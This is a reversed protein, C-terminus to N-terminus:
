FFHGIKFLRTSGGSGYVPVWDKDSGLFRHAPLGARKSILDLLAFEFRGIERVTEGALGNNRYKWYLFRSWEEFTREEGTLVLPLLREEMLSTCPIVGAIGDKDYLEMLFEVKTHTFPGGTADYFVEKQPIPSLGYIVARSFSLKTQRYETTRKM